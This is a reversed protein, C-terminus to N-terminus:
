PLTERWEVRLELALSYIGTIGDAGRNPVVASAAVQSIVWGDVLDLNYPYELANKLTLRDDAIRQHMATPGDDPSYGYNVIIRIVRADYREHGSVNAPRGGTVGPAYHDGPIIAAPRPDADCPAGQVFEDPNVVVFKGVPVSLSSGDPHLGFDSGDILDSIKAIIDADVSM